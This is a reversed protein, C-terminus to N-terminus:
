KLISDGECMTFRSDGFLMTACRGEIDLLQFRDAFVDGEGVEYDVEDITVTLSEQPLLTVQQLSVMTAPAQSATPEYIESITAGGQDTISGVTPDNGSSPASGTTGSTPGTTSGTPTGATPDPATATSGTTGTTGTTSSGGTTGTGTTGTGTASGTTAPTGTATTSGAVPVAPAVVTASAEANAQVVLQQFPDRATFIEFTEPVPDGLLSDPLGDVGPIVVDGDVTVDLDGTDPSQQVTPTAVEDDGGLLPSLVFAWLAYVAALGVVIGLVIQLPRSVQQGGDLDSM